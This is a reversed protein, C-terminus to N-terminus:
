TLVQKPESNGGSIAQPLVLPGSTQDAAARDGEGHVGRHQRDHQHLRAPELGDHHEEEQPAGCGGREVCFWVKVRAVCEVWPDFCRLFQSFFSGKWDKKALFCQPLGEHAPTAEWVSLIVIVIVIVIVIIIVIATAIAMVIVIVKYNDACGGM